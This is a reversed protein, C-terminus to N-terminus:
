KTLDEVNYYGRDELIDHILNARETNYKYVSEAGCKKADKGNEWFAREVMALIGEWGYVDFNSVQNFVEKFEKATMKEM